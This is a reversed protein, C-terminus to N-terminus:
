PKSEGTRKILEALAEDRTGHGDLYPKWTQELPGKFQMLGRQWVGFKEAAPVHGAIVRRIAEGATFFVLAHSLGKPVLKNNLRAQKRLAQFILSDWQHMGEHFVTELGDEGHNGEHLSSVVLLDGETSYAGAWNTYASVHVPYGAQPWDFQYAHTIFSLVTPGHRDVLPQISSRWAQNASQHRPWWAKRYIPAARELIAATSPDIEASALSRAEGAQALAKTIAPLPDDFVLDKKSLAAAYAFVAENWVNRETTNLAALGRDQDVPARVVAERSADSTKNQARGLVYLFHHLNLWFEDTHFVFISNGTKNQLASPLKGPSKHQASVVACASLVIILFSVVQRM